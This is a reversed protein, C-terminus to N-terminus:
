LGHPSWKRCPELCFVCCSKMRKVKSQKLATVSKPTTSRRFACLEGKWPCTLTSYIFWCLLFIQQPFHRSTRERDGSMLAVTIDRICCTALFTGSRGYLLEIYICIYLYLGRTPWDKSCSQQQREWVDIPTVVDRSVPGACTNNAVFLGTPELVHEFKCVHM